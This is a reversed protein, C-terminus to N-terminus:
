FGVEAMVASAHDTVRGHFEPLERTSVVHLGHLCIHDITANEGPWNTLPPLHVANFDGLVIVAGHVTTLYDEVARACRQREGNIVPRAGAPFHTVVVTTVTGSPLHKLAAVPFHLDIIPPKYNQHVHTVVIEDFSVPEWEHKSWALGQGISGTKTQKDPTSRHVDWRPHQDRLRVFQAHNFEAYGALTVHHHNWLRTAETIREDSPAMSHVAKNTVGGKANVFGVRAKHGAHAPTHPHRHPAALNDFIPTETM